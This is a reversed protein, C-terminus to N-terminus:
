GEPIIPLIPLQNGDSFELATGCNDCVFDSNIDICEACKKKGNCGSFALIAAIVLSIAIIKKM